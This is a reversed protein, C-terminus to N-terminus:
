DDVYRIESFSDVPFAYVLTFPDASRNRIGHVADGPHYVVDGPGVATWLGDVLVEARGATVYYVEAPGHHHPRLEAGPPVECLGFTVGSTPTRDGSVLTRWRVVPGGEPGPEDYEWPTGDEPALFQRESM